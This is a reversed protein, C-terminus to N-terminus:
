GMEGDWGVEVRDGSVVIPVTASLRTAEAYWAPNDDVVREEFDVGRERLGSRARDCIPCNRLTYLVTREAM